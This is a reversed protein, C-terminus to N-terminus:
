EDAAELLAEELRRVATPDTIREGDPGRLYFVDVVETGYTAIRARHVDYSLEALARTLDRLLGVRDTAHVEVVTAEASAANDVVVKSPGGSAGTRALQGAKRRLAEHLDLDGRLAAAIETRIREWRDEPLPGHSGRVELAELATGDARTDVDARLVDAGRLALVGCVASLLGPRDAAAVLLEDTAEGRRVETRVDDGVLAEPALAGAADVARGAPAVDRGELRALTKAYLERILSARFTSWAEPGTAIADARSHLFLMALRRADGARAATEELTVDDDLDRRTALEPLLLHERVLFAVDGAADDGLGVARAVLPALREGVGAHDDGHGKGIDHLLAAWLLPEDDSIRSWADAVDPEDSTRSEALEAVTEFLHVDVTFRHYLDRQPLARVPRWEPVLAELLGSRDLAELVPVAARGGRLLDAFVERAAPTWPVRPRHALGAQLRSTSLRDIPAGCRMAHRFAKLWGAPEDAPAPAAVVEIRDGRLVCGDGLTRVSPRFLRRRHTLRELVGSTIADVTRAHRYVHQMLGDGPAGGSFGLRRALEDQEALALRDRGKGVMLHLEFRVRLLFAHAAGLASRDLGSVLGSDVLSEMREGGGHVGAAWGLVHIDRLGGAADRIDPELLHGAHGHREHRTRTAEALGRYFARDSRALAGRVADQLEEVLGGDGALPRADLASAAELVDGLSRVVEGLDRVRHGVDKGADWLPYTLDRVVDGIGEVPGRHLILLDLDSHPALERRGYGGLAVLALGRTPLGATAGAFCGRLVADVEDAHRTAAVRGDENARHVDAAVALADRFAARLEEPM